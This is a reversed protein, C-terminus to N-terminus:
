PRCPGQLVDGPKSVDVRPPSGTLPLTQRWCLQAQKFAAPGDQPDQTSVFSVMAVLKGPGLEDIRTLRITGDHTTRYGKLWDDQSREGARAPTVTATWAAYNQSSIAKFYRDLVAAVAKSDPDAFVDGSVELDSSGAGAAPPERVGAMPVSRMQALRLGAIGLLAGLAVVLVVVLTM